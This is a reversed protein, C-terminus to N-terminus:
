TVVSPRQGVYECEFRLAKVRRLEELSLKRNESASYGSQLVRAQSARMADRRSICEKMDTPLPAVIGGIQSGLYIVLLLKM